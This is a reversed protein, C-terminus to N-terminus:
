YNKTLDLGAYLQSVYKEYGNFMLTPVRKPLFGGDIVKESSQTWRPHDVKPNVNAYFGYEKSALDEWLGRPREKVFEIKVLSKISKFGYKWPVVLRVPAGNQNRLNEGYMGVALLALPNRAEAITLGETYPWPYNGLTRVNPMDKQNNYSTFKLYKAEATPEVSEVLKALPFGIWPLVMSWAEVCRFRYIREELEFATTLDALNLTRPKKVLGGVELKWSDIKWKKSNEAVDTKDLSFEYFNNYGFALESKTPLREVKVFEANAKSKLKGIAGAARAQPWGAWWSLMGLAGGSILSRRRIYAERPTVEDRLDQFESNSKFSMM